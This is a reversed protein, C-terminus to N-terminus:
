EVIVKASSSRGFTEPQYMEEAKAPPVVFTGPTTARAVYSYSHVGAWVLSSFAEARDDRLNQHQYWTGRWWWGGRRPTIGVPPPTPQGGTVALAPNLPELGAPLPDTLAVHYRRAPAVMTVVARVKAGLKIKWSGDKGLTVDGPDDIAEYRRQVTFGHDSPELELKAPAYRLGLRYYLRGKGEKSLVLSKEKDLHTMPISIHHYDTNRGEFEHQGAFNKGLWARAVFYPEDAEFVQFYRDLSLLVFANEQTNGWRGRVRHALLGKVLKPVLDSQPNTNIMAELIIADTRRSSHL